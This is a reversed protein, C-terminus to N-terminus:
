VAAQTVWCARVTTISRPSRVAANPEQDAVPVGLERPGKVRHERGLADVHHLNWRPRRPRVRKRLAENAAGPGIAGVPKKGGGRRPVGLWPVLGRSRERRRAGRGRRGRPRGGRRAGALGPLLGALEVLSM